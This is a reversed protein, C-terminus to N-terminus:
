DEGFEVTVYFGRPTEEVKSVVGTRSKLRQSFEFNGSMALSPNIIYYYSTPLIGETISVERGAELLNPREM